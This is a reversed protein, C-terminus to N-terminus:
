GFNEDIFNQIKTLDRGTYHSVGPIGNVSNALTDKFKHEGIFYRALECVNILTQVDDGTIKIEVEKTIKIM